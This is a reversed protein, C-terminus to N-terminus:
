ALPDQATPMWGIYKYEETIRFIHDTPYKDVRKKGNKDIYAICTYVRQQYVVLAEYLIPQTNGELWLAVEYTEYTEM